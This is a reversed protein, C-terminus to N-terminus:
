NKMIILKLGYIISIIKFLICFFIIIFIGFKKHKYIPIDLLKLNILAMFVIEFMWFNLEKLGFIKFVKNLQM